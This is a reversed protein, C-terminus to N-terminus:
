PSTRRKLNLVVYLVIALLGFSYWQLSYMRHKEIGAAPAPWDRVLGDSLDSTQQLVIPQLTLGTAMAYRKYTLNQWIPRQGRPPEATDDKLEYVQQPWVIARGEITVVDSATPPSPREDRSAGQAIWGRSVLVTPGGGSPTFPTLVHYGARTRYVRNDLLITQDAAFRGTIRYRRWEASAPELPRTGIEAVAAVAREDILRQRDIKEQARRDQWNGLFWTLAVVAITLTTM